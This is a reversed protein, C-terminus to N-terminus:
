PEGTIDGPAYRQNIGSIRRVGPHDRTMEGQRTGYMIEEMGEVPKLAEMMDEDAAEDTLYKPRECLLLDGRRIVSDNDVCLDPHRSAPVPRWHNERLGIWHARDEKGYIEVRKWEYSVGPPVIEKAFYLPDETRRRRQLREGSTPPAAMRPEANARPDAREDRDIPRAEEEYFAKDPM